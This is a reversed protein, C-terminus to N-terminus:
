TTRKRTRRTSLVCRASSASAPRRESTRNPPRRSSCRGTASSSGWALLVALVAVGLAWAAPAGFLLLLASLWLGGTALALALYIPVTWLSHWQRVTEALRLHQGHLGGDGRRRAGDALRVPGLLRRQRCLRDLGPWLARDAPLHRAGGRRGAVALLLAMPQAGLPGTGPAEPPLDLLAARRRDPCRRPRPGLDRPRPGGPDPRAARGVALLFLLGYGAGSATTFVLISTAPHM